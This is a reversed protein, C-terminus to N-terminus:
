HAWPHGGKYKVNAPISHLVRTDVEKRLINGKVNGTIQHLMRKEAKRDIYDKKRKKLNRIYLNYYRAAQKWKKLKTSLVYCAFDVICPQFEPPLSTPYDTTATLETTPYDSIFLKLSYIGDPVPEIVVYNGWQFWYRPAYDTISIHGIGIPLVKLLGNSTESEASGPWLLPTFVGWFGKPDGAIVSWGLPCVSPWDALEYQFDRITSYIFGYTPDWAKKMNAYVVKAEDYMGAVLYATVVGFTGEAWVGPGSPTYGEGLANYPRYGIIGDDTTEFKVFQSIAQSAKATEGIFTLFISGWSNIDLANATDPTSSNPTYGQYFRGQDSWWFTNLLALRIAGYYSVFNAIQTAYTGAPLVRSALEYAFFADINHETSCWPIIYDPDFSSYDGAYLGKGGTLAGAAPGSTVVYDEHLKELSLALITAASDFLTDGEARTTKSLFYALGYCAWAWAGSRLYPDPWDGGLTNVSFAIQGAVDFATLLGAVMREGFDISGANYAAVISVAQDYVYSRHVLYDFASDDYPVDYSRLLGVKDFAEAVLRKNVPETYPSTYDALYLRLGHTGVGTGLSIRYQSGVLDYSDSSAPYTDPWFEYFADTYTFSVPVLIDNGTEPWKSETGTVTAFQRAWRVDGITVKDRPAIGLGSDLPDYPTYYEVEEWSDGTVAYGRKFYGVDLYHQYMTMIDSVWGGPIIYNVRHGLFPILRSGPVTVTVFESEICLAKLAVDKYGDNMAQLIMASTLFVQSPESLDSRILSEMEDVRYLNAM